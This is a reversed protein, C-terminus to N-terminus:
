VRMLEKEIMAAVSAEDLVTIRRREAVTMVAAGFGAVNVQYLDGTVRQGQAALKRGLHLRLERLDYAGAVCWAGRVIGPAVMDAVGRAELMVAARAGEKREADRRRGHGCTVLLLPGNDWGIALVWGLALRAAAERERKARSVRQRGIVGRRVAGM